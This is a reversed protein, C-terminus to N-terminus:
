YEVVVVLEVLKLLDLQLGMEMMWNADSGTLLYLRRQNAFDSGSGVSVFIIERPIAVKVAKTLVTRFVVMNLSDLCGHNEAGDRLEIKEEAALSSLFRQLQQLSKKYAPDFCLMQLMGRMIESSHTIFTIWHWAILIKSCGLSITRMFLMEKRLQDEVSAVSRKADDDAIMEESNVATKGVDSMNDVLTYLHDNSDGGSSSEAVIGKSIWFNVKRQLTDVPLGIAAALSKSTWSTQEQFKMIITAHVPTVIFQLTRDEFELEECQGLNKKRLLKRPTKIEHYRKAYDGLLHDTHEPINVDEDEHKWSEASLMIECKQMSSEGFHIKLLELTCIKTDIDYDTKNLLKEALMDRYENILQDKSGIISVIMGLVDAKRRYRSRMFPAAGIPDPEWKSTMQILIMMLGTNEQNEEDGTLEELLSDRTNGPGNNNGGTGDTLMTVICKVTDKRGKLYERIPEGVAELFVRTPDITRLAKITSVYQDLIDNTSAGATLLWYRLSSIFSDVLKSHQGTYELRQKLDDIAPASDPYDMIIEFLKAIRLDQLTEYAFYELRLQWRTIRESSKDGSSPCSALPSKTSSPSFYSISDGLYDLLEHLFQLPVAQIWNKISELVSNRYEDGALDYVKAKLLLFIASAYADETMSTFGLNRINHVVMGNNELTKKYNHSGDIDMNGSHNVYTDEDDGAIITSLEELRGKFYRHLVETFYHPLTTMLVCSVILRYKSFLVKEVDLLNGEMSTNNDQCLQLSNVLMSLCKEQYQKERSIEELAKCLLEVEDGQVDRDDMELDSVNSYADFNKWFNPAGHKELVGRQGKDLLYQTSNRKCEIKPRDSYKKMIM